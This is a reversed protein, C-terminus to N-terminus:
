SARKFTKLSFEIQWFVHDTLKTPILGGNGLEIAFEHGPLKKGMLTNEITNVLDSFVQNSSGRGGTRLCAVAAFREIREYESFSGGATKKAPTLLPLVFVANQTNIGKEVAPKVSTVGDVLAFTKTDTLLAEVPTLDIM